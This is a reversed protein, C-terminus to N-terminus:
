DARRDKPYREQHRLWAIRTYGFDRQGRRSYAGASTAALVGGLGFVLVALGAAPGVVWVAVSAAFLVLVVMKGAGM